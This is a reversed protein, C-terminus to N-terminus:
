SKRYINILKLGLLIMGVGLVMMDIRYNDIGGITIPIGAVLITVSLSLVTTTKIIRKLM